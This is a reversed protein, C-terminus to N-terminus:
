RQGWVMREEGERRAFHVSHSVALLGWVVGYRGRDCRGAM